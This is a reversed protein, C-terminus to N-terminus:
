FLRALDGVVEEGLEDFFYFKDDVASFGGFM